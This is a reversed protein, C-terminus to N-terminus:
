TKMILEHRALVTLAAARVAGATGWSAHGETTPTRRIEERSERITQPARQSILAVLSDARADDSAGPDDKAEVRHEVRLQSANPVLRPLEVGRGSQVALVAHDRGIHGHLYPLTGRMANSSRNDGAVLRPRESDRIERQLEQASHM